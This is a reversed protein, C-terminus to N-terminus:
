VKTEDIVDIDWSLNNDEKVYTKIISEGVTQIASIIADKLAGTLLEYEVKKAMVRIRIRHANESMNITNRQYKVKFKYALGDVGQQFSYSTFFRVLTRRFRDLADNVSLNESDRRIIAGSLFRLKSLIEQTSINHRSKPNVAVSRKQQLTEIKTSKEEKEIKRRKINSIEANFDPADSTDMSMDSISTTIKEVETSNRKKGNEGISQGIPFSYLQLLTSAATGEEEKQSQLKM